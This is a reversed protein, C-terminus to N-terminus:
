GDNSVETAAEGGSEAADGATARLSLEMAEGQDGPLKLLARQEILGAGLGGAFGAADIEAEAVVFM